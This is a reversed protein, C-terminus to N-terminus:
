EDPLIYSRGLAEQVLAPANIREKQAYPLAFWLKKIDEATEPLDKLLDSLRAPPAPMPYNPGTRMVTWVKESIHRIWVNRYREVFHFLETDQRGTKKLLGMLGSAWMYDKKLVDRFPQWLAKRKAHHHIRINDTGNRSRAKARKARLEDAEYQSIVGYYLANAIDKERMYNFPKRNPQCPACMSREIEVAHTGAYGQKRAQLKTLREKFMALPKCQGCKPCLRLPNTGEDTTDPILEAYDGAPKIQM